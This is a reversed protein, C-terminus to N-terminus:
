NGNCSVLLFFETLFFFNLASLVLCSIMICLFHFFFKFFIGRAGARTVRAFSSSLVRCLVRCLVSRYEWTGMASSRSEQM